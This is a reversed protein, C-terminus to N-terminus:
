IAKFISIVKDIDKFDSQWVRVVKFGISKAYADQSADLDVRKKQRADLLGYSVNHGHWYDGDFQIITNKSPVFADVAFKGNIVYQPIYDIELSDLLSYAQTEFRNPFNHSQDANMQVLREKFEPSKNRCEISCYRQNSFSPSRIFEKGCIPCILHVKNRAQYEDACKRSCTTATGARSQPVYFQVGCNVCTKYVGDKIKNTPKHAHYCEPSCFKVSKTCSKRVFKGCGACYFERIGNKM